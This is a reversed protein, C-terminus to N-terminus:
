ANLIVSEALELPCDGDVYVHCNGTYHKIVPIRSQEVIARILSEGGRPIVLDISDEQRLLIPVLARDTTNVVQVAEAPLGAQELAEAIVGGIAQNSRFSEKGGRLICANGSKICLAAADSTVDPRSEYIIAVVGLPVRRKEIRLGNPRVWGAIVQGVPDPQDAVEAASRAMKEIRGRDLRLRDIMASALGRGEAASIDKANEALLNDARQRLCQAMAQLASNRQRGSSVGLARGVRRASAALSVAYPELATASESM